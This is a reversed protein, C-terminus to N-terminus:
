LCYSVFGVVMESLLLLTSCMIGACLVVLPDPLGDLGSRGM